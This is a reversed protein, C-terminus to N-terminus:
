VSLLHRSGLASIVAVGIPIVLFQYGMKVDTVHVINGM